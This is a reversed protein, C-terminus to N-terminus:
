RRHRSMWSLSEPANCQPVAYKAQEGGSVQSSTQQCIKSAVIEPMNFASSLGQGALGNM